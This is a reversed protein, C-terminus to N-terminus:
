VSTGLTLTAQPPCGKSLPTRQLSCPERRPLSALKGRRSNTTGRPRCLARQRARLEPLEFLQSCLLTAGCAYAESPAKITFRSCRSWARSGHRESVEDGRFDRSLDGYYIMLPRDGGMSCGHRTRRSLRRGGARHYMTNEQDFCEGRKGTKVYHAAM